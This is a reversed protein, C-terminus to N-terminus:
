CMECAQNCRTKAQRETTHAHVVAGGKRSHQLCGLLRPSEWFSAPQSRKRRRYALKDVLHASPNDLVAPRDEGFQGAGNRVSDFEILNSSAKEHQIAAPARANQVYCLDRGLPSQRGSCSRASRGLHRPSAPSLFFQSRREAFVTCSEPSPHESPGNHCSVKWVSRASLAISTTIM